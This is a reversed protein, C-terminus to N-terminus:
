YFRTLAIRKGVMLVFITVMFDLVAAVPGPVLSEM